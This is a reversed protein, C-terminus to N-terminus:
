EMGFQTESHVSDSLMEEEFEDLDMDDKGGLNISAYASFYLVRNLAKNYFFMNVSWLKGHPDFPSQDVIDGDGDLNSDDDEADVEDCHFSFVQCDKVQIMDDIAKWLNNRFSLPANTSAYAMQLYGDIKEIAKAPEEEKRLLELASSSFDYDPFSQNIMSILNWIMRRTAPMTMDIELQTQTASTNSLSRSISSGLTSDSIHQAPYTPPSPSPLPRGGGLPEEPVILAAANLKNSLPSAMLTTGNMAGNNGNVMSTAQIIPSSAKMKERELFEQELSKYLKKDNGAQKCSYAEIRAHIQTGGLMISSLSDQATTLEPSDLYKM